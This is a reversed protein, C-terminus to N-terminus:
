PAQTEVESLGVEQLGVPVLILCEGLIVAVSVKHLGCEQHLPDTLHLVMVQDTVGMLIRFISELHFAGTWEMLFHLSYILPHRLLSLVTWEMLTHIVARLIHTIAQPSHTIGQGPFHPHCKM